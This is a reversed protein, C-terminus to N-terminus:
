KRGLDKIVKNAYSKAELLNKGHAVIAAFRSSSNELKPIKNLRNLKIKYINKMKKLKDIKKSDIDKINIKDAKTLFKM